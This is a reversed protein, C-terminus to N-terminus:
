SASAVTAREDLMALIATELDRARAQSDWVRSTAVGDRIRARLTTSWAQDEALRRVFEVYEGDSGAITDPVGFRRLLANGLREGHRIGALTVVPVGVALAEMTGNVNGCPMPDLAVDLLRYRALARPESRSNPIFVVRDGGIGHAALWRLYSAKWDDGAPSLALVAAPVAELVRRWLVLCRPSLKMLSVFAGCVFAGEQIGAEARTSPEPEAYRRWPFVGGEVPRLKEIMFQQADDSEALTDTLKFDIARLGVPGPTAIHTASVRAPKLALIGQQAGRTHGCCDLLLDIDDAAIRQAADTGRKGSLDVFSLGLSRFRDTWGDTSATLSYLIPTFRARDHHAVLEFIMRGMVHDRLDGSLYGIRLPGPRRAAAPPRPSGYCATAAEDYRLYWNYLVARDLDVHLLLFLLQEWNATHDDADRAPFDGALIRERWHRHMDPEGMAMTVELGYVAMGLSEPCRERFNRFNEIWSEIQGSQQLCAGLQVYTEPLDPRAAIVQRYGDVAENFAGADQAIAALNFKSDIHTPDAALAQQYATRAAARSGSRQHAAGLNFSWQAVNPELAVARELYGIASREGPRALQLTALGLGSWGAAFGPTLDVAHRYAVASEQWRRLDFLRRALTYHADRFEPAAGIAIQLLDIAARDRGMQHELQSLLYAAIPHRPHADLVTRYTAAAAQLDGQQHLHIAENLRQNLEAVMTPYSTSGAGAAELATRALVLVQSRTPMQSEAETVSPKAGSVVPSFGPEILSRAPHLALFIPFRALAAGDIDVLVDLDDEAVARAAQVETLTNLDLARKASFAPPGAFPGHFYVHVDIDDGFTSAGDAVLDVAPEAILMGVRPRASGTRGPLVLPPLTSRLQQAVLWFKRTGDQRGAAWPRSLRQGLARLQDVLVQSL